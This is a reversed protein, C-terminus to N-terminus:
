SSADSPVSTRHQRPLRRLRAEWVWEADRRSAPTDRRYPDRRSSMASLDDLSFGTEAKAEKITNSLSM